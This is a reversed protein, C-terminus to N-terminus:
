WVLCILGIASFIMFKSGDGSDGGDDSDFDDDDDDGRSRKRGRKRKLRRVRRENHKNKKTNKKPKRKAVKAKAKPRGGKSRGGGGKSRTHRPYRRRETVLYKFKVNLFHKILHKSLLTKLDSDKSFHPKRLLLTLFNKDHRRGPVNKDILNLNQYYQIVNERTHLSHNSKHIKPKEDTNSVNRRFERITRAYCVTLTLYIKIFILLSNM